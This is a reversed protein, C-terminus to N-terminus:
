TALQINKQERYIEKELNWAKGGKVVLYKLINESNLSAKTSLWMATILKTFKFNGCFMTTVQQGSELKALQGSPERSHFSQKKNQFGHCHRKDRLSPDSLSSLKTEKTLWKIMKFIFLLDHVCM